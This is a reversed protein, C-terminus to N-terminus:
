APLHCIQACTRDFPPTPRESTKRLDHSSANCVLRISPSRDISPNARLYIISRSTSVLKNYEKPFANEVAPQAAKEKKSEKSQKAAPAPQAEEEESLEEDVDEEVDEISVDDEEDDDEALDEFEDDQADEPVVQGAAALMGSLEKRLLEEASKDNSKKPADEVDEDESDIGELLAIDEQTGGLALVEQLFEDQDTSPKGKVKKEEAAIVDGNRDRKKGKTDKQNDGRKANTKPAAEATNNKATKEAAQKAKNNKSKEKAANQDKLRQEIKQRLGAFASEEIQPMADAAASPANAASDKEPVADNAGSSRRGKGKAM